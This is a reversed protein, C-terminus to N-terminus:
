WRRHLSHPLSYSANGSPPPDITSTTGPCGRSRKSPTPLAETHAPAQTEGPVESSPQGQYAQSYCGKTHGHAGADAIPFASYKRTGAPCPAVVMPKRVKAPPKRNAKKSASDARSRRNHARDEEDVPSDGDTESSSAEDKRARDRLYSHLRAALTKKPGTTVLYLRLVETSLNDLEDLTPTGDTVLDAGRSGPHTPQETAMSGPYACPLLSLVTAIFHLVIYCSIRWGPLQVVPM